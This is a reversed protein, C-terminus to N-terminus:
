SEGIRNIFLGLNEEIYRTLAVAEERSELLIDDLMLLKSGDNYIRQPANIIKMKRLIIPAWQNNDHITLDIFEGARLQAPFIFGGHVYAYAVTPSEFIDFDVVYNM